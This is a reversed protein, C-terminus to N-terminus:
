FLIWRFYGNLAPSMLYVPKMVTFLQVCYGRNMSQAFSICDPKQYPKYYFLNSYKTRMCQLNICFGALM